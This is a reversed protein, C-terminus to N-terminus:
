VGSQRVLDVYRGYAEDYRERAPDPEYTVTGFSRAILERGESISGIEGMAILQMIINGAATAESPGAIVPLGTADASLRNLSVDKSGGGVINIARPYFGTLSAIMATTHRYCLALSDFIVRVTQGPTVPVKQGTRRCYDAIRSPIDGPPSFSPDNPDILSGFPEASESASSLDDFSLNLGESAWQRRSEQLLWLGMINKLFRVTGAAGGENTFNAKRGAENIRPSELETGLLSWTGSSIYVFEGPKERTPVALVASATDHSAVNVIRMKGGFEPLVRGLVEGPLVQPAFLDRPIGASDLIEGSLKGTRADLLAGTSAITYECAERGTLCFNLWDPMFLLRRASLLSEPNDRLEAALQYVTNFELSQIGTIEYLREWTMYRSFYERIGSTRGDRYHFPDNLLQGKGDILVYDVGWTDIGACVAGAAAGKRVAEEVNIRLRNADWHLHGGETVPGNAFRSLESLRLKDGDFEGLIARGSSAGLDVALVSIRKKMM